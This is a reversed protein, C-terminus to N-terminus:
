CGYSVRQHVQDSAPAKADGDEDEEDCFHKALSFAGTTIFM